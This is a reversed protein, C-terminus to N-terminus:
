DRKLVQFIGGTSPRFRYSKLIYDLEPVGTEEGIIAKKKNVSYSGLRIQEDQSMAEEKIEPSDWYWLYEVLLWTAIRMDKEILLDSTESYDRNTARRIWSDARDIYVQIQLDTLGKVESFSTLGRIEEPTVFM